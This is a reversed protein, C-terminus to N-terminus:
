AGVKVFIPTTAVGTAINVLAVTLAFLSFKLTAEIVIAYPEGPATWRIM